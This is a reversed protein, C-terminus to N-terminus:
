GPATTPPRMTPRASAAATGSTPAPKRPATAKRSSMATRMMRGVPIKPARPHDDVEDAVAREEQRGREGVPDHTEAQVQLPALGAEEIDADGAENGDAGVGRREEGRGVRGAAEDAELKRNDDDPGARHERGPEGGEDDASQGR